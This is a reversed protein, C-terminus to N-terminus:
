GKRFRELEFKTLQTRGSETDRFIFVNDNEVRLRYELIKKLKQIRNKFASSPLKIGIRERLNDLKIIQMSPRGCRKRCIEYLRREFPKSLKFYDEHLTLVDNDDITEILWDSM